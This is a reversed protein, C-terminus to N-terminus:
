IDPETPARELRSPGRPGRDRVGGPRGRGGEGESREEGGTVVGTGEKM